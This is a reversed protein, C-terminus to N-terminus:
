RAAAELQELKAAQGKQFPMWECYSGSDPVPDDDQLLLVSTRSHAVGNEDFVALNVLRDNWAHAVIAACLLVPGKSRRFWVIRGVTPQIM